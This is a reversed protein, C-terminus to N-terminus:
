DCRQATWYGSLEVDAGDLRRMRWTAPMCFFGDYGGGHEASVVTLAPLFDTQYITRGRGSKFTVVLYYTGPLLLCEPVQWRVSYQGPPLEVPRTKLSAVCMYESSFIAVGGFVSPVHREARFEVEVEFSGGTPVSSTQRAEPGLLRLSIPSLEGSGQGVLGAPSPSKGLNAATSADYYRATVEEPTGLLKVGGEDLWMVRDSMRQVQRINHSVFLITVGARRMQELRDFCKKQFALDGVSLVEDILVVDAAVNMAVAFGLRAQMGSSYQRVPRDFWDELECFEEVKPVIARAEARSLGMITALLLVNECGTLDPHIGANLEIMPFITGQVLVKGRTPPTVGALVKLLTSKGAGNRGVIGLTEGRQVEVTVDKLAWPGDNASTPMGQMRRWSRRVASAVPLGYRKWLGSISIVSEEQAMM